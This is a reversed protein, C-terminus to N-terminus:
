QRVPKDLVIGITVGAIGSWFALQAWTWPIGQGWMMLGAFMLLTGALHVWRGPDRFGPVPPEVTIRRWYYAIQTVGVLLMILQSSVISRYFYDERGLQHYLPHRMITGGLQWSALCTAAIWMFLTGKAGKRTM